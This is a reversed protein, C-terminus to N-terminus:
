VIQAKLLGPFFCVSISFVAPFPSFAPLWVKKGILPSLRVIQATDLLNGGKFLEKKCRSASCMYFHM